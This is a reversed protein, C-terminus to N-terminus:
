GNKDKLLEDWDLEDGVAGARHLLTICASMTAALSGVVCSRPLREDDAPDHLALLEEMRRNMACLHKDLDSQERDGNEPTEQGQEQRAFAAQEEREQTDTPIPNERSPPNHSM